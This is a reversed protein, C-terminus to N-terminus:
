KGEQQQRQGILSKHAANHGAVITNYIKAFRAYQPHSEDAIHYATRALARTHVQTKRRAHVATKGVGVV